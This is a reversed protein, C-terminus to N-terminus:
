IAIDLMYIYVCKYVRQVLICLYKEVCACVFVCVCVCVHLDRDLGTTEKM